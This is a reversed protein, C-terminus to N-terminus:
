PLRVRVAPSEVSVPLSTERGNVLSALTYQGRPVGAISFAGDNGALAAYPTTTAVITARMGPHVDCVVDYWGSQTFVHTFVQGNSGSENMVTTGTPQRMVQVNHDVDESNRFEVTQGVRVFLLDPVFQRSYQDLIAPGEPM